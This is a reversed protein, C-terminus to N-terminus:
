IELKGTILTTKRKPLYEIIIYRCDLIKMMLRLIYMSTNLIVKILIKTLLLIQLLLFGFIGLLKEKQFAMNKGVLATLPFTFNITEDKDINAYNEFIVKHVFNTYKFNQEIQEINTKIEQVLKEM